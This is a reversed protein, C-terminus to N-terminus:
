RVIQGPLTRVLGGPLAKVLEGPLSKVLGGRLPQVVQGALPGVVQGPLSAVVQGRLAPIFQNPPASYYQSPLLRVVTRVEPQPLSIIVPKAVTRLPSALLSEAAILQYGTGIILTPLLCLLPLKM